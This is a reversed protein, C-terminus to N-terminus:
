DACLPCSSAGAVLADVVPGSWRPTKMDPEPILGGARAMGWQDPSFQLAGRLQAASHATTKRPASM